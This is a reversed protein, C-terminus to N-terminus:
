CYTKSRGLNSLLSCIGVMIKVCPHKVPETLQLESIACSTIKDQGLVQRPCNSNIISRQVLTELTLINFQSALSHHHQVIDVNFFIYTLFAFYTRLIKPQLGTQKSFYVTFFTSHMHLWCTILTHVTWKHWLCKYTYVAYTYSQSCSEGLCTNLPLWLKNSLSINVVEVSILPLLGKFVLAFSAFDLFPKPRQARNPIRPLQSMASHQVQPGSTHNM